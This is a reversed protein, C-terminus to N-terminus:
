GNATVLKEYFAPYDEEREKLASLNTIGFEKFIAKLAPKNNKSLAVALARVDTWSVSKEEIPKADPATTVPEVPPEQPAEIPAQTTPTDVPAPNDFLSMQPYTETPEPKETLLSALAQSLTEKKPDYTVEVKVTAM